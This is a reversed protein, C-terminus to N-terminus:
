KIIMLCQFLLIIIISGFLITSFIIILPGIINMIKKNNKDIIQQYSNSINNLQLVLSDFKEGSKIMDLAKSPFYSISELSPSIIHEVCYKNYSDIILSKYYINDTVNNIVSLDSISYKIMLFLTKSYVVMQNDVVSNIYKMSIRQFFYKISKFNNLIIFILYIFILVIFLIFIINDYKSFKIFGKLFKIDEDLFLKYLNYFKPLIYGLLFMSVMLVYPIIFIKFINLKIENIDNIYLSKYYDEMEKLHEVENVDNNKLVYILFKPFSNGQMGLADSLSNGCMLDYRVMRLIKELNKYKCNNIVLSIANILSVGTDLYSNVQVLFYVLEKNSIEKKNLYRYKYKIYKNAKISILKKNETVLFNNIINKNICLCDSEKTNDSINLATYKYVNVDKISNDIYEKILLYPSILGKYLIKFLKM